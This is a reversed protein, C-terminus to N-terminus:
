LDFKRRQISPTRRHLFPNVVNCEHRGARTLMSTEYIGEYKLLVGEPGTPDVTIWSAFCFLDDRVGCISDAYASPAGHFRLQPDRGLVARREDAVVIM